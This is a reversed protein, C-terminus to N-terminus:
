LKLRALNPVGGALRAQASYSRQRDLSPAGDDRDGRERRMEEEWQPRMLNARRDSQKQYDEELYPDEDLEKSMAGWEAKAREAGPGEPRYTDALTKDLVSKVRRKQNVERWLQKRAKCETFGEFRPSTLLEDNRLLWYSDFPVRERPATQSPERRFFSDPVERFSILNCGQIRQYHQNAFFPNDENADFVFAVGQSVFMPRLKSLVNMQEKAKRLSQPDTLLKRINDHNLVIRWRRVQRVITARHYEWRDGNIRVPWSLHIGSVPTAGAPAKEQKCEFEIELQALANNANVPLSRAGPPMLLQKLTKQDCLQSGYADAAIKLLRTVVTTSDQVLSDHDLDPFKDGYHQIRGNMQFAYSAPNSEADAEVSSLLTRFEDQYPVGRDKELARFQDTPRDFPLPLRAIFDYFAKHYKFSLPGYLGSDDGNKGFDRKTEWLSWIDQVRNAVDPNENTTLPYQWDCGYALCQQVMGINELTEANESDRTGGM